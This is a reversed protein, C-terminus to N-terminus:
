WLASSVLDDSEDFVACNYWVRKRLICGHKELVKTFRESNTSWPRGRCRVHFRVAGNMRSRLRVAAAVGFVGARWMERRCTILFM